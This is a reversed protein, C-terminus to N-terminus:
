QVEGPYAWFAIGDKTWGHDLPIDGSSFHFTWGDSQARHYQYIPVVNDMPKNFAKFAVKDYTWSEKTPDMTKNFYFRWGGYTGKQNYHFQYIDIM